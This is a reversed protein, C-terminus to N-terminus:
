KSKVTLFSDVLKYLPYVVIPAMIVDLTYHVHQVLLLFGVAIIALFGLIKDSRKDLVMCLLVLTATHGSFFLDKTINVNGYFVGSLPDILPILGAPPNLKVLSITIMRLIIIFSYTWACTVYMAPKSAARYLALAGMGWIIAFIWASMDHAPIQDLLWDNLQVGQRKEINNFFFPLISLLVALM